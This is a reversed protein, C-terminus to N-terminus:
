IFVPWQYVQSVSFAGRGQLRLKAELISRSFNLSSKSPSHNYKSPLIQNSSGVPRLPINM